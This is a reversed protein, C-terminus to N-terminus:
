RARARATADAMAKVARCGGSAAMCWRMLISGPRPLTTKRSGCTRRAIGPGCSRTGGPRSDRRFRGLHRDPVFIIKRDWPLSKVVAVANPRTCCYDSEAKVEATSNVYCVVLADPHEAKLDRLQDATIMDAMPCGAAPGPDPGDERSLRESDRGHVSAASSSRGPM